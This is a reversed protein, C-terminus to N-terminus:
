KTADLTERAQDRHEAAICEGSDHSRMVTSEAIQKLTERCKALKALTDTLAAAGGDEDLMSVLLRLREVERAISNRRTELTALKALATDRDTTAKARAMYADNANRTELNLKLIAEDREHELKRAHELISQSKDAWVADTEPTARDSM